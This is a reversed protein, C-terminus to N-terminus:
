ARQQRLLEPTLMGMRQFQLEQYQPMLRREAGLIIDQTRRGYLEPYLQGIIDYPDRYQGEASELARLKAQRAREAAKKKSSGGLLSGGISVAASGVALWSM